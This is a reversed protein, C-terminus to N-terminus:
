GLADADQKEIIERVPKRSANILEHVIMMKLCKERDLYSAFLGM